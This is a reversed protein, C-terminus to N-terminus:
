AVNKLIWRNFTQTRIAEHDSHSHGVCRINTFTELISWDCDEEFFFVEKEIQTHRSSTCYRQKRYSFPNQWFVIKKNDLINVLCREPTIYKSINEYEEKSLREADVVYGGHGSCSFYFVGKRTTKSVSTGNRGWRTEAFSRARSSTLYFM